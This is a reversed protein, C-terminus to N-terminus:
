RHCAGIGYWVAHKLVRRTHDRSKGLHTSKLRTLHLLRYSAHLEDGLEPVRAPRKSNATRTARIAVRRRKKRMKRMGPKSVNRPRMKESRGM